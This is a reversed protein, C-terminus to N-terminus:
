SSARQPSSGLAGSPLFASLAAYMAITFTAIGLQADRPAAAVLLAHFIAALALGFRRYRALTLSFLVAVEIALSAAALAEYVGDVRLAHPLVILSSDTFFQRMRFGSLYLPNLKSLAAFLYVLLVQLRIAALSLPRLREDGRLSSFVVLLTILYLHNSYLRDDLLMLGGAVAAVVSGWRMYGILMAGGALLLASPLVELFADPLYAAPAAQRVCPARVTEASWLLLVGALVAALGLLFRLLTESTNCRDM